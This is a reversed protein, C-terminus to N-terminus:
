SDSAVTAVVANLLADYRILAALALPRLQEPPPQRIDVTYVRAKRLFGAKVQEVAATAVETEGASLTLAQGRKDPEVRLVSGGQPDVVDITAKKARPGVGYKTVRATGLPRADADAIEVKAETPKNGRGDWGLPASLLRAGSTDSITGDAACTALTAGGEDTIEVGYNKGHGSPRVVLRGAQWM